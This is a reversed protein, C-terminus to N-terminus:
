LTNWAPLRKLRIYCDQKHPMPELFAVTYSNQHVEELLTFQSNGTLLPLYVMYM